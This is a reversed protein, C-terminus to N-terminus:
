PTKPPLPPTLPPPIPPPPPNTRGGREPAALEPPEFGAPLGRNPPAFAAVKFLSGMAKPDTLRQLGSELALRQAPSARRRLGELRQEIGLRFLFRGQDVPGFALAGSDQAARILAGFDVHATLDAEGPDALPDAYEHARVAQFTDGLAPGRYGYDILLAAGGFDVVREAISRAQWVGAPSVEAIEGPRARRLDFTILASAPDFDRALAHTLRGHEADWDILRERWGKDTCQFQRIPLADFFENAIVLIPGDPVESLQDHWTVDHAKLTLRQRERLTPSTEVLHIQAAELFGPVKRAARLADAMLTGRGPGLEVLRLLKPEGLLRRWADVLWLGILEGFMQSIEPATTFDGAAGLPDRTIYYGHQPHGLAETMYRAVTLPGDQEISRRLLDLLPSM